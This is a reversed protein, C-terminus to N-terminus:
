RIDSCLCIEGAGALAPYRKQICLGAEQLLSDLGGREQYDRFGRYHEGGAIREIIRVLLGAGNAPLPASYDAIILKKSIRHMEQLVAIRSGPRMEHLALTIMSYAFSDDDMHSLRSGDAEITGFEKGSYDLGEFRKQTCAVMRGNIDVGLYRSVHPHLLMAQAGTGCGIEVVTSGPQILQVIQRRLGSILPDIILRYLLCTAGSM